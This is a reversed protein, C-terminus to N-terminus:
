DFTAIPIESVFPESDFTSPLAWRGDGSRGADAAKRVERCTRALGFSRGVRTNSLEPDGGCQQDIERTASTEHPDVIGNSTCRGM